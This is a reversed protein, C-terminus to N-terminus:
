TGPFSGVTGGLYAPRSSIACISLESALWTQAIQLSIRYDPNRIIKSASVDASRRQRFKAVLGVLVMNDAAIASGYKGGSSFFSGVLSFVGSM